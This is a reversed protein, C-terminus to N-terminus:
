AAVTVVVIQFLDLPFGASFELLLLLLLHVVVVYTYKM